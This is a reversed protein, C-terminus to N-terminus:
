WLPSLAPFLQSFGLLLGDSLIDADAIIRSVIDGSSHKDLYSLPLHQIHRISQARIDQVVRYTMRNNIVSMVWGTVGSLVALIVVRKLYFGVMAFDVKGAALINDIADGFLIPVYLQLVVTVGAMLVSLILLVRFKAIHDWLKKLTKGNEPNTKRKM